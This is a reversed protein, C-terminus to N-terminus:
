RGCAPRTLPAAAQTLSASPPRLGDGFPILACARVQLLGAGACGPLRGPCAPESALSSGIATICALVVARHVVAHAPAQSGDRTAMASKTAMAPVDSPGAKDIAL